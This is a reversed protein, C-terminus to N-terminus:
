LSSTNLSVGTVSVTGGGTGPDSSNTVYTLTISLNPDVGGIPWQYNTRRYFMIYWTGSALEIPNAALVDLGSVKHDYSALTPESGRRLYIEYPLSGGMYQITLETKNPSISSLASFKYLLSSGASAPLNLPVYLGTSLYPGFNDEVGMVYRGMYTHLWRGSAVESTEGNAINFPLNPVTQEPAATVTVSASATKGGDATTATITATGAAKATVVGGSVTAVTTNSSSWSVTKNTANSPAVTATLTGTAGVALSLSSTNLSVGTVAVTGTGGGLTYSVTLTVGSYAAYANLMVYWDGAAPSTVTITENNGAAYGRHDYSSTTPAAGHKAYVDCDGSGGSTTIQLNTVGSPIAIKYAKQANEVGSLNPVVSGNLLVVPASPASIVTVTASSKKGGDATTVTITATGAAKATVVGSSSVTAVSTNGSSWSVTKNTANAPAITASLSETAGVTLSFATRNLAVSAVSVTGGSPIASFVLQYGDIIATSRYANIKVYYTGSPLAARSIKSWLHESSYDDNSDVALTASNPGYLTMVTDGGNYGPYEQTQLIIDSTQGLTFKIWDVDGAQHLSRSQTQGSSIIKASSAIDDAEYADGTVSNVIDLLINYGPVTGNNYGVVKIYYTGAPLATQDIRSWYGSRSADDDNYALQTTSSNPGYLYIITDGSSYGSRASTRITVDSPRALTFKLWDADGAQHISHGQTQGNSITSATSASNDPEYGDSVTGGGGGLVIEVGWRNGVEFASSPRLTLSASGTQGGYTATIDFAYSSTSFHTALGLIGNGDTLFPGFSSGDDSNTVTVSAGAVPNGSANVVRVSLLEHNTQANTEELINYVVASFPDTFTAASTTISEGMNYWFNDNGNWGMNLHVWLVDSNNRFGYGDAVVAHGVDNYDGDYGRIALVCPSGYDLNSLVANKWHTASPANIAKANAYGFRETFADALRTTFAGSGGEKWNMGVATGVDIVLQGIAERVATSPNSGPDYPMNAWDYSRGGALASFSNGDIRCTETFTEVYSQPWQFYRMVQAGATAVCGAPYGRSSHGDTMEYYYCNYINGGQGWKTQVLPSRRVDEIFNIGSAAAAHPNGPSAPQALLEAWESEPSGASPVTAGTAAAAAAPAGAGAGARHSAMDRKLLAHLPSREDAAFDAIAGSSFAVVPRITTDASTVIFGNGELNVVHFIATAGTDDTVTTVDRVHQGLTTEGLPATARNRWNQVAMKAQEATVPVAHLRSALVCLLATGLLTAFTLKIKM